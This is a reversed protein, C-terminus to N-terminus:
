EVYSYGEKKGKKIKELILDFSMQSEVTTYLM